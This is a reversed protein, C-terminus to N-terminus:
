FAWHVAVERVGNEAGGVEISGVLASLLRRQELDRAPAEEKDAKPFPSFAPSVPAPVRRLEEMRSLLREKLLSFQEDPIGRRAWDEYLFQLAGAVLADEGSERNKKSQGGDQFPQFCPNLSHDSLWNSCNDRDGYEQLNAEMREWLLPELIGAPVTGGGCSRCRYYARGNSVSRALRRGCRACQVPLPKEGGPRRRSTRGEPQSLANQVALYEERSVLPEHAAPIRVWNEPPIPTFLNEKYSIKKRTGQVLVGTYMENRLIREVATRSWAGGCDPAAPNRLRRWVGPSPTGRQNLERAIAAAGEGSLCRRYIERVVGAAPPDPILRHRDQPDKQYGYLPFSGLYQGQRRKSDFVARLNESLDELYWQNMLGNIQRAKKSGAQSTDVSDVVTVFRIGWKPFLKHLYDEVVELDRTFRSQSKCLVIEFRRSEADSLMEQFAPRSRDAGSYDEDSYIKYVEWDRELAYSLLLSKQNKISESEGADTGPVHADERSLRCYIACKM